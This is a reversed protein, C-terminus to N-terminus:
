YCFVLHQNLIMDSLCFVSYFFFMYSCLFALFSIYNFTMITFSSSLTIPKTMFETNGIFFVKQLNQLLFSIYSSTKISIIINEWSSRIRVCQGVLYRLDVNISKAALESSPDLGMDPKFKWPHGIAYAAHLLVNSPQVNSMAAYCPRQRKRCYFFFITSMWEYM